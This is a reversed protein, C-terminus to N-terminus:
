SMTTTDAPRVFADSPSDDRLFYISWQGYLLGVERVSRFARSCSRSSIERILLSPFVPFSTGTRGGPGYLRISDYRSVFSTRPDEPPDRAITVFGRFPRLHQSRTGERGPTVIQSPYPEFGLSASDSCPLRPDPHTLPGFVPVSLYELVDFLGGSLLVDDTFSTFPYICSSVPSPTSTPGIARGKM